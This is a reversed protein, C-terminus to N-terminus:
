LMREQVYNCNVCARHQRARLYGEVNFPEGWKTWKHSLWCKM